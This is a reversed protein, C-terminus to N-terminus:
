NIVAITISKIKIINITAINVIKIHSKLPYLCPKYFIAILNILVLGVDFVGSCRQPTKVEFRLIDPSFVQYIYIKIALRSSTKTYRVLELYQSLDFSKKFKM